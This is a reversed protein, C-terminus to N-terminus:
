VAGEEAFQANQRQDRPRSAASEKRYYNRTYRNFISLYKMCFYM